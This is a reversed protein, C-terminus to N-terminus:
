LCSPHCEQEQAVSGRVDSAFELRSGTGENFDQVSARPVPSPHGTIAQRASHRRRQEGLKQEACFRSPM